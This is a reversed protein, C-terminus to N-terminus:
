CHSAPPHERAVTALLSPMVLRALTSDSEAKIYAFCFPRYKHVVKRTKDDEVVTHTGVSFLIWDGVYSVKHTGDSKMAVGGEGYTKIADVLNGILLRESMFVIGDESVGNPLVFLEHGKGAHEPDSTRGLPPAKTTRRQELYKEFSHAAAWSKM